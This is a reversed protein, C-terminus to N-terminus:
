QILTFYQVPLKKEVIKRAKELSTASAPLQLLFLRVYWEGVTSLRRETLGRPFSLVALLKGM